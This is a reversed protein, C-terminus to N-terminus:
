FYSFGLNTSFFNIFTGLPFNHQDDTNGDNRITLDISECSALPSDENKKDWLIYGDLHLIMEGYLHAEGFKSADYEGNNGLRAYSAIRKTLEYLLLNPNVNYYDVVGYFGNEFGPVNQLPISFYYTGEEENKEKSTYMFMTQTAKQLSSQNSRRRQSGAQMIKKQYITIDIINYGCSNGSALQKQMDRIVSNGDCDMCNVPNNECYAFMNYGLVGTGTSVLGDANIFRHTVPDYYRSQLYYFGSEYDYYYGRYRFPQLNAIDTQSTIAAGSANIVALKNGWVDYTYEAHLTGDANYLGVIDGRTNHAYYYYTGEDNANVRYRVAYIQGNADYSYDLIQDGITEQLLQSGNYLYTYTVNNVVKKLRTGSNDYTYTAIGDVQNTNTNFVGYSALQRGNQWTFTMGDRYNLPNGINDYTITTGNYSTLKDGWNSDGYSYYITEDPETDSDEDYYEEALINGGADYEYCYSEQTLPYEICYVEGLVNYYYRESLVYNQNSDKVYIKTINGNADYEYKYFFDGNTETEVFNTTYGGEFGSALYTYDTHINTPTDITTDILRGLNDYSNILVRGGTFYAYKPLNDKIYTYSTANSGYPTSSVFRKVNNNEDFKYTYASQFKNTSM